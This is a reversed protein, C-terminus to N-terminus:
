IKGNNRRRERAAKGENVLVTSHQLVAFRINPMTIIVQDQMPRAEPLFPNLLLLMGIMAKELKCPRRKSAM